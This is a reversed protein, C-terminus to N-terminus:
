GAAAEAVLLDVGIEIKARVAALSLGGGCFHLRANIEPTAHAAGKRGKKGIGSQASGVSTPM